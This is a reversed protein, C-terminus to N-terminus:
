FTWTERLCSRRAAAPPAITERVPFEEYARPFTDFLVLKRGLAESLFDEFSLIVKQVGVPLFGNEKAAITDEGTQWVYNKARERINAYDTFFVLSEKAYQSLFTGRGGYVVHAYKEPNPLQVGSSLLEIDHRLSKKAEKREEQKGCETM